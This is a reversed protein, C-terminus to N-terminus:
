KAALFPIAIFLALAQCAFGDLILYEKKDACIGVIQLILGLAILAWGALIVATDADM